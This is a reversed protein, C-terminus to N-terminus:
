EGDSENEKPLKYDESENLCFDLYEYADAWGRDYDSDPNEEADQAHTEYGRRIDRKIKNLLYVATNNTTDEVDENYSGCYPCYRFFITSANTNHSTGTNCVSCVKDGNMMIWYGKPRDSLYIFQTNLLDNNRSDDM